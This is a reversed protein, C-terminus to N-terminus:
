LRWNLGIRATQITTKVTHDAWQTAGIGANFTRYTKSGLNAYLYEAKLTMNNAFAFEWGAGVVGGTRTSNSSGVHCNNLTNLIPCGDAFNWSFSKSANVQGAALGGTVYILSRDFALGGRLRLTALWNTKVEDISRVVVGSVPEVVNGTDRSAKNSLFNIDGEAGWVFSSGPAQMNYGLQLGGIVGGNNLTVAGTNTIATRATANMNSAVDVFTSEAYRGSAWGVNAGIYLGTWNYVAVMPAAKVPMRTPLDAAAAMQSFGATAIIALALRRM